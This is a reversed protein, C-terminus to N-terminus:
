MYNTHKRSYNLEFKSDTGGQNLLQDFSNKILKSVDKKILYRTIVAGFKPSIVNSNVLEEVKELKDELSKTNQQYM